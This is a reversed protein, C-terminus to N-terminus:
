SKREVIDPFDKKSLKLKVLYINVKEKDIFGVKKFDKYKDKKFYVEQVNDVPAYYVGYTMQESFSAAYGLGFGLILYKQKDKKEKVITGQDIKDSLGNYEM